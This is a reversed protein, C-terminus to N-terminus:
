SRPQTVTRRKALRELIPALNTLPGPAGPCLGLRVTVTQSIGAWTPVGPFSAVSWAALSAVPHLSSPRLWSGAFGGECSYGSLVSLVVSLLHHLVCASLAHILAHFVLCAAPCVSVHQREGLFHQLEVFPKAFPFAHQQHLQSGLLYTQIVEEEASVDRGNGTEAATISLSLLGDGVEEQVTAPM